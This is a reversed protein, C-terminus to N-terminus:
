RVPRTMWSASELLAYGLGMVVAGNIQSETTLRNVVLGCDQIAVIKIVNVIGTETDVEVDAFQVGATDGVRLNEDWEGGESITEMGLYGTAEEM